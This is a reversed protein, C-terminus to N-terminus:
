KSNSISPTVPLLNTEPHEGQQRSLTQFMNLIGRLSDQVNLLGELGRDQLVQDVRVAVSVRNLRAAESVGGISLNQHMM